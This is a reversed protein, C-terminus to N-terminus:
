ATVEHVCAKSSPSLTGGCARSWKAEDMREARRPKRRVIASSVKMCWSLKKGGGGGAATVTKVRRVQLLGGRGGSTEATEGAPPDQCAAYSQSASIVWELELPLSNCLTLPPQVTVRVPHVRADSRRAGHIRLQDIRMCCHFPRGGEGSAPCCSIFRSPQSIVQEELEDRMGEGGKSSEEGEADRESQAQNWVRRMAQLALDPMAFGSFNYEEQLTGIIVASAVARCRAQREMSIVPTVERSGLSIRVIKERAKTGLM